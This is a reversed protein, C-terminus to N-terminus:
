LVDSSHWPRQRSTHTHTRMMSTHRHGRTVARVELAAASAAKSAPSPLPAEDDAADRALEGARSEESARM